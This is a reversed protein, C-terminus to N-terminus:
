HGFSIRAHLTPLHMPDLSCSLLGSWIHTVLPSFMTSRAIHKLPQTSQFVSLQLMHSMLPCLPCMRPLPPLLSPLPPPPPPSMGDQNSHPDARSSNAEMRLNSILESPALRRKPDVNQKTLTEEPATTLPNGNECLVQGGGGGGGGGRFRSQKFLSM